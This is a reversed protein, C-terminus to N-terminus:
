ETSEWLQEHDMVDILARACQRLTAAEGPDDTMTSATLLAAAGLEAAYATSVGPHNKVALISGRSERWTDRFETYYRYTALSMPGGGVDDRRVGFM